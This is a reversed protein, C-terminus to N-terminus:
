SSSPLTSAASRTASLRQTTGRNESGFNRWSRQGLAVTVALATTAGAFVFLLAPGITQAVIGGVVVSVPFVGIGALLLLGTIRGLVQPPAWRQVTTIMVLNGFGNLVGFALLATSAAATSGLYPVAALVPAEALIAVSSVVAPRGFGRLHGAALTGLLAGAGFTAILAGYGGAGAHLSGHALAPIGIEIVGGMGLNGVINVLLLLQLARESRVLGRLTRTKARAGTRREPREARRVGALTLASVAFSAADAAFAPVPGALSVLMGGLAPGVLTALQTGGFALSNAAQLEDARVLTPIIAFSGPLFLGAAVGLLIAIPVLVAARPPGTAAAVTLASIAGARGVDAVLMVTWPRWRDSAYGGVASVLMRPVGYAALVTGLLVAGGDATLVYWPLAVAFCADGLDSTLRGAALLRFGNQRLPSLSHM